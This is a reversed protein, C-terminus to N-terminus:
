FLALTWALFLAMIIRIDEKVRVDWIWKIVVNWQNYKKLIM